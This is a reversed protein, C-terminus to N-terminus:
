RAFEPRENPTYHNIVICFYVNQKHGSKFVLPLKLCGRRVEDLGRRTAPSPNFLNGDTNLRSDAAFCSAASRFVATMAKKAHNGEVTKVKQKKETM